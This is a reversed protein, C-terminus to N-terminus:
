KKLVGEEASRLIMRGITSGTPAAGTKVWKLQTDEHDLAGLERLPKYGTQAVPKPLQILLNMDGLSFAKM